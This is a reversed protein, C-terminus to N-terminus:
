RGAERATAAAARLERVADEATRGTDNWMAIALTKAMWGGFRPTLQLRNIMADIAEALTGTPDDTEIYSPAYGAAIALAGGVCVPCDWPPKLADPEYWTGTALGNTHITDAAKDLIQSLLLVTTSM